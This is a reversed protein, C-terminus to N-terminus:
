ASYEVEAAVVMVVVEASVVLVVAYDAGAGM